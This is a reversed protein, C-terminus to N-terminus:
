GRPRRWAGPSAQMVRKFARAFSAESDYGVEQAIQSIPRNSDLLKRAAVHIRWNTLYQMPPLGLVENFRGALASRSLGIERGLRDVTWPEEIRAHLLALARSVFPDRLASLWGTGTSEATEVYRQIAEVFLLESLKSMIADSGLHGAAIQEAAYQFTNRIWDASSSNRVDLCLASPLASIIPNGYIREGGLYGCVLRTTLAADGLAISALQGDSSIRVVQESSIAPLSLDSGMLHWDNRPFLISEGARAVFEWGDKMRVHLEGELVYHYPIVQADDGLHRECSRPLVKVSLCWPERFEARLFLGGSLRMIRLTDSLADM